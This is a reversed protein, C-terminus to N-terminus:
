SILFGIGSSYRQEFENGDKLSLGEENEGIFEEEDVIELGHCRNKICTELRNIMNSLQKKVIETFKQNKFFRM